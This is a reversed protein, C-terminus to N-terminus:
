LLKGLRREVRGFWALAPVTLILGLGLPLFLDTVSPTVGDYALDRYAELLPTAPNLQYLLTVPPPVREAVQEVSYLVPSLYLGFRLIHRLLNTLDRVFVTAASLAIVLPLLLVLQVIALAPLWLLQLSVRGPWFVLMVVVMVALAVFLRWMQAGLRAVPLVIRPFALQRVIRENGTIATSGSAIAMTIGKWPILAALIFLAYDPQPRALIITVLLTYVAMQLLPDAIWWLSGLILRANERRLEARTLDVVLHRWAFLAELQRASHSGNHQTRRHSLSSSTTVSAPCPRHFAHAQHPRGLEDVAAYRM